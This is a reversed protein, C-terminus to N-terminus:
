LLINWTFNQTSNCNLRLFSRRYNIAIILTLLTQDVYAYLQRRVNTTINMMPGTLSDRNGFLFCITMLSACYVSFFLQLIMLYTNPKSDQTTISVLAVLMALDDSGVSRVIFARTWLRMGWLLWSVVACALCVAIISRNHSPPVREIPVVIPGNGLPNDVRKHLGFSFSPM